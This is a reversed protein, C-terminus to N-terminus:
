WDEKTTMYTVYGDYVKAIESALYDIYELGYARSKQNRRAAMEEPTDLYSELPRISNVTYRAKGDKVDIFIRHSFLSHILGTKYRAIYTGAIKSDTTSHIVDEASTFTTAFWNLTREHIQKETLSDFEAIRQFEFIGQDNPALQGTLIAPFLLLIYIIYKM